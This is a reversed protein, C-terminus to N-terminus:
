RSTDRAPASLREAAGRAYSSAPFLRRLRELAQRAEANNGAREHAVSLGMLIEPRLQIALAQGLLEIAREPRGGVVHGLASKHLRQARPDWADAELAMLADLAERSRAYTPDIALAERYAVIAARRQGTALYAAGTNNFIALSDGASLLAPNVKLARDYQALAETYRGARLHADGVFLHPRPMLPAKALADQWLGEPTAWVQGRQLSLVALIAVLVVAGTPTRGGTRPVPAPRLAFVAACALASFAYLRHENVLVNLPVVITPLLTLVGAGLWTAATGLDRSALGVLVVAALSGVAALALILVAELALSPTFAHEVTLATPMVLLKVYYPLAKTQTALQAAPGRVPIQLLVQSVHGHAGLVYVTAVAVLPALRMSIARWHSLIDRGYRHLEYLAALIPVVVAVSKALLAGSLLAAALWRSWRGRARAAEVYLALSAFAFGWAMSESRASVYSVAESNIPHVAFLVVIVITTEPRNGLRTLLAYLAVAALWHLVLNTWKFARSEGAGRAYDLAYSLSVLPRFLGSGGLSSFAAGADTFFGPIRDLSRIAENDVITHLDDYQFAGDLNPGYVAGLLAALLALRLVSAM